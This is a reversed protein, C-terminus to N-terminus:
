DPGNAVSGPYNGEAFNQTGFVISSAAGSGATNSAVVTFTYSNSGSLGTFPMSTDTTAPYTTTTTGNNMSVTYSTAGGGVPADWSLLLSGVGTAAAALNQVEGPASLSETGEPSGVVGLVVTNNGNRSHSYSKAWSLLESASADRGLIAQYAQATVQRGHEASSLFAYAVQTRSAGLVLQAVHGELGAADANRGLVKSYLSQVFSKNGGGQKAFYETSGLISADLREQSVGHGLASVYSALGGAGPARGLYDSFAERVV